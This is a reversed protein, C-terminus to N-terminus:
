LAFFEGADKGTREKYIKRMYKELQVLSAQKKERAAQLRALVEKRKQDDENMEDLPLGIFQDNIVATSTDFSYGDTSVTGIFKAGTGQLEQYITGLADCFTDGFSASDGCGFLGILKDSLDLSKIKALFDFWDDQLDGAGWTSSGLLLVEYKGLDAPSATAVNYVDTAPISLLNAIQNAINETTGSSSGFFIGTKKM